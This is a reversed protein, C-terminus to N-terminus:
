EPLACFDSFKAIIPQIRRNDFNVDGRVRGEAADEGRGVVQRQVQRLRVAPVGGEDAREAVVEREGAGAVQLEVDLLHVPVPDAVLAPRDQAPGLEQGAVLGGLVARAEGARQARVREAAVAGEEVVGAEDVGAGPEQVEPEGAGPELLSM